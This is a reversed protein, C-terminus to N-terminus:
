HLAIAIVMDKFVTKNGCAHGIKTCTGCKIPCTFVKKNPFKSRLTEGKNVKVACFEGRTISLDKMRDTLFDYRGGNSLNLTYNDPFFYNEDALELFLPFSKSYGYANMNNCEKLLDMWNILDQRTNFDGDVYLRFETNPKVRANLKLMEKKIRAFNHMLLTNQCQRVFASPYRWAKFSYCWNECDGSGMCTVIPLTSFSYFPLKGNGKVLLKSNLKCEMPNDIWDHLWDKFKIIHYGNGNKTSTDFNPLIEELKSILGFIDNNACMQAIEMKSDNTWTM